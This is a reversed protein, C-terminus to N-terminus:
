NFSNERMGKAVVFVLRKFTFSFIHYKRKNSQLFYEEILNYTLLILNKKEQINKIL